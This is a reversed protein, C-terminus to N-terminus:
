NDELQYKKTAKVVIILKQFSNPRFEYWVLGDKRHTKKHFGIKKLLGTFDNRSEAPRQRVAQSIPAFPFKGILKSISLLIM